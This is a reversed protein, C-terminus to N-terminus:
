VITFATELHVFFRNSNTSHIYKSCKPGALLDTLYEPKNDFAASFDLLTLTTVGGGKDMSVIIDNIPTIPIIKEAGKYFPARIVHNQCHAGFFSKLKM